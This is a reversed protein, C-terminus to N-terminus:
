LKRVINALTKNDIEVILRDIMDGYAELSPEIKTWLLNRLGSKIEDETRKVRKIKM